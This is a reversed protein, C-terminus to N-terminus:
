KFEKLSLESIHRHLGKTYSITNTDLIFQLEVFNGKNFKCEFKVILNDKSIFKIKGQGFFYHYVKTSLTLDEIKM